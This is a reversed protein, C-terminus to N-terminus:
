YVAYKNNIEACRQKVAPTRGHNAAIMDDAMKNIEDIVHSHAAMDTLLAQLVLPSTENLVSAVLM